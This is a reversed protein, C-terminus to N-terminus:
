GRVKKIALTLDPVFATGTVHHILKIAYRAAKKLTQNRDPDTNQYYLDVHDNLGTKNPKLVVPHFDGTPLTKLVERQTAGRIGERLMDEWTADAPVRNSFRKAATLTLADPLYNILPLATTHLEFPFWRYPTQDLFLVSGDDMASWLLPIVTKRESPLLHEFVASMVVLDFKGLGAPLQQGDPSRIFSVNDLKYFEARARAIELSYELLEVGVIQSRPFMRALIMTSAGSGCGFDLIRRGDFDTLAFHASMDTRLLREVCNPDEDRMMEHCIGAMGTRKCLLEILDPTYTTLWEGAFMYARADDPIVTVLHKGNPQGEIEVSFDTLKLTKTM